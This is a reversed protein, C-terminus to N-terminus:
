NYVHLKCVNLTTQCNKDAATLGDTNKHSSFAGHAGSRQCSVPEGFDFSFRIWQASIWIESDTNVGLPIHADLAPRAPRLSPGAPNFAGPGGAHGQIRATPAKAQMGSAPSSPSFRPPFFPYLTSLLTSQFFVPFYKPSTELLYTSFQNLDNILGCYVTNCM